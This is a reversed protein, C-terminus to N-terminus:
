ICGLTSKEAIREVNAQVASETDPSKKIAGLANELAEDRVRLTLVEATAPGKPGEDAGAQVNGGTGASRDKGPGSQGTSNQQGMKRSHPLNNPSSTKVGLLAPPGRSWNGHPAPAKDRPAPGAAKAATQKARRM